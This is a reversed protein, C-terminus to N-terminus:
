GRSNVVQVPEAATPKSGAAAPEYRGPALIGAPDVTQKIDKLLAAYAGPEAMASMMGISLRYSHYGHEALRDVLLRYCHFARNDEGAV